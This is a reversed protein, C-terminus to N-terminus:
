DHKAEEKTINNNAPTIKYNAPPEKGMLHRVFYDWKKREFYWNSGAFSHNDNPLILLDFDKNARILADAVQLTLAPHVNDDMDGCALLLKGKLNEALRANIQLDYSDGSSSGMYLEGWAALYGRQDHNGASSVAVKYFDPYALVARTSAFGGGSHGYIGVRDLDMYPRTKALQKLATIHDELGGAEELKGYCRDHYAKSRLPTGLGDITVVIFGLEAVAQAADPTFSDKPTRISQPGPYISDVVPYTGSPDFDSPCFIAGYIDTKGDRAKAKFPEPWKYSLTELGSIDANELFTIVHGDMASRLVSVAPQDIRSYSNVFYAGTPSFGSAEPDLGPAMLAMIKGSIGPLSMVVQHDAEEPTLCTLDTGDLNVRYIQRLYPDQDKEIGGASFYVVRKEENVHLIDRVVWEGSTIQNKLEGTKGDYLYLHAWGSRQSFWIIEEGQGLVRVNPRSGIKLNSEVFTDSSEDILVQVDGSEADMRCLKMWASDRATDIFYLTKSDKSWWVSQTEVLTMYPVELMPYRAAVKTNTKIDFIFIELMAVHEDGPMSYRYSHMHPRSSKDPPAHQLLHLDKVKREDLCGCFLKRSDPSWAAMPPLLMKALRLSVSMTNADPSKGYAYYSEGDTTLMKKEDNDTARIYLNNNELCAAWKGDLSLNEHM